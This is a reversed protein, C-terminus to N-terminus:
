HICQTVHAEQDRRVGQVMQKQTLPTFGVGGRFEIRGRAEAMSALVQRKIRVQVIHRRWLPGPIDVLDHHAAIQDGSFHSEEVVGAAGGDERVEDLM